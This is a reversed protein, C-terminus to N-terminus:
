DNKERLKTTFVYVLISIVMIVVTYVLNNAYSNKDISESGSKFTIGLPTYKPAYLLAAMTYEALKSNFAQTGSAVVTPIIIPLTIKFFTRLPSSGLSTAAEELSRNVNFLSARTLRVITPISIVAYGITLLWWTGILPQGLTFISGVDYGIILGLGMMSVPVIWPILLALELPKMFRKRIKFIMIASIVGILLAILTGTGGIWFSNIMPSLASSSSSFVRIYNDLSLHTPFAKILITNADAFSYLTIAIVPIAYILCLGYTLLHVMINLIPNQIKVKRIRTTVKSTSVFNGRKEIWNSLLMFLISIIGLVLALVAAMDRKGLSSLLTIRSNLMQFDGGVITPAANSALSTIFTLVSSSLIAPLITPLAVRLFATMNHAGLSKAAEITSYDVKKFTTRVFLIFYTNFFFTHIYLVAGYGTFWGASFGPFINRLFTNIVSYENFLFQLGTILSISTLILPVFFCLKAFRAGRIDFYETVLIQFIGVVNVSVVTLASMTLTNIIIQQISSSSLVRRINEYSLSGNAFFAKGFTSVLPYVMFAVVFWIIAIAAAATGSAKIIRYLTWTRKEQMTKDARRETLIFCTTATFICGCLREM